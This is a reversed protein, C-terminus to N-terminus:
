RPGVADAGLARNFALRNGIRKFVDNKLCAMAEKATNPKWTEAKNAHWERALLILVLPRQQKAKSREGRAVALTADPYSGFTRRSEKCNAQRVKM